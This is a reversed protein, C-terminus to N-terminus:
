SKTPKGPKAASSKHTAPAKAKPKAKSTGKHTAPKATAENSQRAKLEEAHSEVAAAKAPDTSTTVGGGTGQAHAGAMALSMLLILSIKHM